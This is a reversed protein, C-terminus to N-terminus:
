SGPAIMKRNRALATRLEQMFDGPYEPIPVPVELVPTIPKTVPPSTIEEAPSAGVWSHYAQFLLGTMASAGILVLHAM